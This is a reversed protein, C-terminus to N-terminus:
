HCVAMYNRSGVHSKAISDVLKGSIGFDCIRVDGNRNVLINSPKVDRHIVRLESKLYQLASVIQLYM